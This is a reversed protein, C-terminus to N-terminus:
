AVSPLSAVFAGLRAPLTADSRADDRLLLWPLGARQVLDRAAPFSWGYSDEPRPLHFIVGNLGNGALTEALWSQSIPAPHLRPCPRERWAHQFLAQLAPRDTAVLPAAARSGWDDDELVIRAGAKEVELHLAAHDLPCGTVLLRPGEAKRHEDSALWERLAQQGVQPSLFRLAGTAQQAELGSIARTLRRQQLRQLLVRTENGAELAQRLRAEDIPAGVVRALERQLETTRALGYAHSSARQTHLIDYLWLPPGGSAHGIRGAERLSLYLKHWPETSRPIVLLRLFDYGGSCYAAFVRRTDLDSFSEVWSDAAGADGAVPALCVSFAGAAAILEIPVTNGVYGVVPQGAAHASRAAALRDGYARQLTALGSM